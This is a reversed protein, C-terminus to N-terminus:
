GDDSETRVYALEEPNLWLMERCRQGWSMYWWVAIADGRDFAARAEQPSLDTYWSAGGKSQIFTAM